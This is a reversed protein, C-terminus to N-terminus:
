SVLLVLLTLFTLTLLASPTLRIQKKEISDSILPSTLLLAIVYGPNQAERLALTKATILTISLVILWVGQGKYLPATLAKLKPHRTQPTSQSFPTFIFMVTNYLGSVFCSVSLYWIVGAYASGGHIAIYRTAISMLALAFVAPYLYSEAQKSVRVKMMQWYSISFGSLILMLTILYPPNKFLAALESFDITWWLFVTLLVTTAMFGSSAHGGFRASAFFIHSDYVGIMLGQLILILFYSSPLNAAPLAIFLPLVLLTIGFGRWIGLVYGNFNRKDNYTTYFANTLAYILSLTIWNM